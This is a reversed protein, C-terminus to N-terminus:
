KGRKDHSEDSLSFFGMGGRHDFGETRGRDLSGDCAECSEQSFVRPGLFFDDSDFQSLEEMFQMDFSVRDEKEKDIIGENSLCTFLNRSAGPIPIMILIHSPEKTVLPEDRGEEIPVEEKGKSCLEVVWLSLSSTAGKMCFDGQSLLNYLVKIERDGTFEIDKHIAPIPCFLQNFEAPPQAIVHDRLEFGVRDEPNLSFSGLESGKYVLIRIPFDGNREISLGSFEPKSLKNSLDITKALNSHNYDSLFPLLRDIKDGSIKIERCNIYELIIGLTPLNLLHDFIEFLSKPKSIILCSTKLSDFPM